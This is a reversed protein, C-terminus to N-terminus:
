RNHLLSIQKTDTKAKRHENKDDLKNKLETITVM